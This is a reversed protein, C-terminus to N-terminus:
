DEGFIQTFLNNEELAQYEGILAKEQLKEMEESVVGQLDEMSADESDAQVRLDYAQVEIRNKGQSNREVKNELNEIKDELEEVTSGSQDSM